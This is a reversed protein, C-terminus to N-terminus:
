ECKGVVYPPIVPLLMGPIYEYEDSDLITIDLNKRKDFVNYIAGPFEPSSIGAYLSLKCDYPFDSSWLSNNVEKTYNLAYKTSNWFILFSNILILIIFLYLVIHVKRDNIENLYLLVAFILFYIQPFYRAWWSESLCFIMIVTIVIPIITLWFLHGNQHYIRFVTLSFLIVAIILIGSFFIGNGSIRTDCASLLKFESDYISFPLKYEAKKGSSETINDMKSFTAIMFKEVSNKEKFYDPQNNIM